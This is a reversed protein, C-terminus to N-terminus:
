AGRGEDADIFDFFSLIEDRDLMGAEEKRFALRESFDDRFGRNRMYSNWWQVEEESRPIGGDQCWALVEEDSANQQIVEALAEYDVGLFQCAWLDMAIGLNAHYDPHLKGAAHLRVKDCLRPLYVLGQIEDHPSRPTQYESM